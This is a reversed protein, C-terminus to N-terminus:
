IQSVLKLEYLNTRCFLARTWTQLMSLMEAIREPPVAPALSMKPSPATLGEAAPVARVGMAVALGFVAVLILEARVGARVGIM